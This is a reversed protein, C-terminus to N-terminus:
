KKVVKCRESENKVWFEGAGSRLQEINIVEVDVNPNINYGAKFVRSIQPLITTKGIYLYPIHSFTKMHEYNIDMLRRVLGALMYSKGTGTGSLLLVGTKKEKVIKDYLEKIAKKQFWFHNAKEQPSPHLGYDNSSNFGEQETNVKDTSTDATDTTSQNNGVYVSSQTQSKEATKADKGSGTDVGNTSIDNSKPENLKRELDDELSKLYVGLEQFTIPKDKKTAFEGSNIAFDDFGIKKYIAGWTRANNFSWASKASACLNSLGKKQKQKQKDEPTM